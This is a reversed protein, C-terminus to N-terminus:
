PKSYGNDLPLPKFFGKICNPNRVCIQIHNREKFGANTYLDEGEWFVGRVSDYPTIGSANDLAHLNEIVACDLKRILLDEGSQIPRLNKPLTLNNIKSLSELFYYSSKLFKLNESDLLDLCLGLDILAGVVAPTKVKPVKDNKTRERQESAFEYARTLNNEWFYIGNGLWDYDNSSKSLYTKGTIISNAVSEDCGHFGIVLNSRKSYM